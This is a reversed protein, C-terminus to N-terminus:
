RATNPLYIRHFNNMKLHKRCTPCKKQFQIAQKICNTCFIHGCMTTAPEDLKNWCVPCTFIPEKPTVKVPEKSTKGASKSQLSSGEGTEPSINVVPAVRQRKNRTNHSLVTANDDHTVGERTVHAELDVVTVPQRRTRRNTRQPVQSASVVQVEDELAEVDIPSTRAGANSASVGRRSGAAPPSTVLNVVVKDADQSQRRSARRTGNPTSMSGEAGSDVRRVSSSRVLPPPPRRAAGRRRGACEIKKKKARRRRWDEEEEGDGRRKRNQVSLIRFPPPSSTERYFPLYTEEGNPGRRDPGAIEAWAQTPGRGRKPPGNGAHRTTSNETPSYLSRHRDM